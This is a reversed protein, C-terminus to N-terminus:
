KVAFMILITMASGCLFGFEKTEYWPPDQEEELTALMGDIWIEYDENIEGTFGDSSAAEYFRIQPNFKRQYKIEYKKQIKNIYKDYHTESAVGVSLFLILLLVTLRKIM